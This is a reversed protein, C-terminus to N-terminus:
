VCLRRVTPDHILKEEALRENLTSLEGAKLTAPWRRNLRAAILSRISAGQRRPSAPGDVLRPSSGAGPGRRERIPLYAGHEIQGSRLTWSLRSLPV